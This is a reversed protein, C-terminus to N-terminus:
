FSGCDIVIEENLLGYVLNQGVVKVTSKELATINGSNVEIKEDLENLAYENNLDQWASGDWIKDVNDTVIYIAGAVHPTEPVQEKFTNFQSLTGVGAVYKYGELVGVKGAIKSVDTQLDSINTTNTTVQDKVVSLGDIDTIGLLRSSVSIKGDTQSVSTVVKSGEATHNYDLGNIAEKIQDQISGDASGTLANLKTNITDLTDKVNSSYYDVDEANAHAYLYKSGAYTKGREGVKAVYHGKETKALALEGELLETTSSNALSEEAHKLVIRTNLSTAM